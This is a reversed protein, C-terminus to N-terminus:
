IYEQDELHGGCDQKTEICKFYSQFTIPTEGKSRYNSQKNTYFEEKKQQVNLRFYFLVNFYFKFLVLIYSWHAGTSRFCVSYNQGPQSERVHHRQWRILFYYVDGNCHRHVSQVIFIRMNIIQTYIITIKNFHKQASQFPRILMTFLHFWSQYTQASAAKM